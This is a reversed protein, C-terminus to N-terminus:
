LLVPPAARPTLAPWAPAPRRGAVERCRGLKDRGLSCARPAASFPELFESSLSKGPPVTSLLGGASAPSVPRVGTGPLNWISRLLLAWSGSGSLSREPARSGCSGFGSRRSGVSWVLLFWEVSSGACRLWSCGGSAAPLSAQAFCCRSLRPLFFDSKLNLAM